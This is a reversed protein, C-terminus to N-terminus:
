CRGDPGSQHCCQWWKGCTTAVFFPPFAHARPGNGSNGDSKLFYLFHLIPLSYFTEWFMHCHHCGASACEGGHGIVCAQAGMMEPFLLAKGVGQGRVDDRVYISNEVTFRYASRERFAGYYAYASVLGAEDEAVLWANGPGALVKKMRAAMDAQDPPVEEFTGAGQLVHHAYIATIAPLDAPTAERILM